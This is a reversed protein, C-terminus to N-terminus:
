TGRWDTLEPSSMHYQEGTIGQRFGLGRQFAPTIRGKCLAAIDALGVYKGAPALSGMTVKVRRIFAKEHFEPASSYTAAVGLSQTISSWLPTCLTNAKVNM